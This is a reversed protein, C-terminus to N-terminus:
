PGDRTISVQASLRQFAASDFTTLLLLSGENTPRDLFRPPLDLTFYRVLSAYPSYKAILGKLAESSGVVGVAIRGDDWRALLMSNTLPQDEPDRVALNDSIWDSPLLDLQTARVPTLKAIDHGESLYHAGTLVLPDFRQQADISEMRVATLQKYPELRELPVKYLLAGGAAMPAVGLTAYWDRWLKKNRSSSGTRMWGPPQSDGSYLEWDCYCNEAVIITSIGFNALLAKLQSGADPLGAAATMSRVMPWDEFHKPSLPFGTWGQVMSFYMNSEAQWLMTDGNMNFPMILVNDRPSLYRQYLGASFFTPIDADTAWYSASLNPLMFLAIIAMVGLRLIPRSNLESLWLATIIALDLFAYLMLRAPLAKQIFPIKTFLLWPLGISTVHGMIQLYPGVSLVLLVFLLDIMLRGYPEGWHRGAFLAAVVVLSPSLYGGSEMLGCRFWSALHRLPLATGLQNLPTPVLFNLLDVSFTSVSMIETQRLGDAFLFYLYPSIIIGAILYAAIIAPTIAILRKRTEPSMLAIALLLTLGTVLTMTAFLEIFCLFQTILLATLCIIFGRVSIRENLRLLGAYLVLPIPFVLADNLNGLTKGLMHASFGFIFGGV